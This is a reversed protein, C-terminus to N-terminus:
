RGEGDFLPVSGDAPHVRLYAQRPASARLLCSYIAIASALSNNVCFPCFVVSFSFRQVKGGRVKRNLTESLEKEILSPLKQILIRVGAYGIAVLAIATAGVAIAAPRKGLRLLRALPNRSNSPEPPPTLPSNSM